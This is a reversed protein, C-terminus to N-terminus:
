RIIVLQDKRPPSMGLEERARKELQQASRLTAIEITRENHAIVAAEKARLASSIEYGYHVAQIRTWVYCLISVIILVFLGPLLLSPRAIKGKIKKTVRQGRLVEAGGVTPASIAREKM